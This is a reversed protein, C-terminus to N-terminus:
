RLEDLPEIMQLDEQMAYLEAGIVTTGQMVAACTLRLAVDRYAKAVAETEPGHPHLLWGSMVM